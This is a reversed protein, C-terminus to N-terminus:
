DSVDNSGSDPSNNTGMEDLAEGMLSTKIPTFDLKNDVYYAGFIPIFWAVVLYFVKVFGNLHFSEYISFTSYGAILCHIFVIILLYSEM